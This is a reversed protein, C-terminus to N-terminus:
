DGRARQEEDREDVDFTEALQKLVTSQHLVKAKGLSLVSTMVAVLLFCLFAFAMGAQVTEAGPSAARAVRVFIVVCGLMGVVSVLTALVWGPNFDGDKEHFWGGRRRESRPAESM